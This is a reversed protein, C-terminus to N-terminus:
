SGVWARETSRKKLILVRQFFPIVLHMHYEAEITVLSQEHNGLSPLRVDTVKIRDKKIQRSDGMSSVLDGLAGYLKPQFVEKVFRDYEASPLSELQERNSKEWELILILPEPLLSSYEELFEETSIVKDRSSRIQDLMNGLVAAGKTTGIREKGELYLVEAPYMNNAIVKTTESLATQLASETVSIQIMAILALFFTLFLPLILAAELVMGGKEDRLM